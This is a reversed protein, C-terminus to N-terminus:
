FFIQHVVLEVLNVVAEAVLRVMDVVLIRPVMYNDVLFKMQLPAAQFDTLLDARITM